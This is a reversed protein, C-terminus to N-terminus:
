SRTGNTHCRALGSVVDAGLELSGQEDAGDAIAMLFTKIANALPVESPVDIPQGDEGPDAFDEGPPYLTLAQAAHADFALTVKDCYVVFRRRPAPSLNSLNLRVDVEGPFMFHLAVTEGVGEPTQRHELVAAGAHDPTGDLLDMCLALDEPGLDWPVTVGSRFPGAGGVWSRIARVPGVVAVLEKLTRYAPHFLGTHNVMVLGQGMGAIRKLAMADGVTMALPSEVLVPVGSAVAERTMPFHQGAPTAIIVGHLINPNLIARWDGTVECGAPVLATTEPNRSAVRVLSVGSIDALVRLIERGRPGAGILGLRFDSM